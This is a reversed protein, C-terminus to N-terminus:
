FFQVNGAVCLGTERYANMYLGRRKETQLVDLSSSIELVYGEPLKHHFRYAKHEHAKKDIEDAMFSAIM